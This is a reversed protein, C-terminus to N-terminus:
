LFGVTRAAVLSFLFKLALQIPPLALQRCQRLLQNFLNSFLSATLTIRFRM